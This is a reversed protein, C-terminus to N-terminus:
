PRGPLEPSGPLELPLTTGDGLQLQSFGAEWLMIRGAPADKGRHDATDAATDRPNAGAEASIANAGATLGLLNPEHVGINAVSSAELTALTVMAVVQALRLESIQGKSALPTGPVAVRRMAAHQFCEYDLGIQTQDVMEEPTHEPGIPEVCFYLDLGAERVVQLTAKRAAPELDTDIGERLRCVHYAGNVGASRMEEAHTREFDGINAVIQAQTPIADRVMRVVELFREFDYTHMSMLFLARLDGGATFAVAQRVIEQDSLTSPALTAHGEGFVCSGCNGPCPFTEFGIQAQLIGTNDFRRRALIDAVARTASAELSEAPYELLHICEQRSPASGQEARDLIRAVRPAIKM